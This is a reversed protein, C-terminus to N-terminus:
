DPKIWGGNMYPFQKAYLQAESYSDFHKGNVSYGHKQQQESQPQSSSTAGSAAMGMAGGFLMGLGALAGLAMAIAVLMPLFERLLALILIYAVVFFGLWYFTTVISTLLGKLGYKFVYTLMSVVLMVGVGLLVATQVPTLNGITVKSAAWQSIFAVPVLLVAMLVPQIIPASSKKDYMDLMFPVDGGCFLQLAVFLTFPICGLFCTLGSQLQPDFWWTMDMGLKLGQLLEIAAIGAMLLLACTLVLKSGKASRKGQAMRELVITALLLLVMLVGAAIPWAASYLRKAEPSRVDLTNILTKTKEGNPTRQTFFFSNPSLDIDKLVDTTGAKNKESFVLHRAACIVTDGEHLVWAQTYLNRREQTKNHLEILQVEDGRKLQGVVKNKFLKPTKRVNISETGLPEVRYIQAECLTSVTLTMMLLVILRCVLPHYNKM